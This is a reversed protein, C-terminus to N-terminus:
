GDRYRWGHVMDARMDGRYNGPDWSWKLKELEEITFKKEVLEVDEKSLRRLKHKKFIELLHASFKEKKVSLPERKMPVAAGCLGCYRKVQDQFDEPKKNWWGKKIPYGGPGDLLSDLAGAVECFFCGKPTITPCWTRQLWCNNILEKRYEIDEVVDDAAVTIPQHLCVEKQYEDHENYAVFGFTEDILEKYGDYKTSGSSWLGVKERPVEKQLILCIEEFQPHLTPEGGIIGIQKPWGELSELAKRFTDISMNFKQDPRLHRIYRTCYACRQGCVNTVDIQCLWADYIPKM